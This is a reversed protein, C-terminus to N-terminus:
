ELISAYISTCKKFLARKIKAIYVNALHFSSVLNAITITNAIIITITISIRIMAMSRITTLNMVLNQQASGHSVGFLLFLSDVFNDEFKLIFLFRHHAILGDGRWRRRMVSVVKLAARDVVAGPSCTAATAVSIAADTTVITAYSCFCLRQATTAPFHLGAFHPGRLISEEGM